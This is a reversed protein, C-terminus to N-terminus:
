LQVIRVYIINREVIKKYVVYIDLCLIMYKFPYFSEFKYFFIGCSASLNRGM